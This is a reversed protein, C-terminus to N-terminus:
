YVGVATALSLNTPVFSSVVSSVCLVSLVFSFCLLKLGVRQM